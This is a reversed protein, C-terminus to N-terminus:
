LSAVDGGCGEVFEQVSRQELCRNGFDEEESKGSSRGLVEGCVRQESVVKYVVERGVAGEECAGCSRLSM